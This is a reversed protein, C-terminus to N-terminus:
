RTSGARERVSPPVPRLSDMTFCRTSPMSPVTEACLSSPLSVVIRMRSGAAAAMVSTFCFFAPHRLLRRRSCCAGRAQDGEDTSQADEHDGGADLDASDRHEAGARVQRRTYRRQDQDLRLRAIRDATREDEAESGAVLKGEAAHAPGAVVQVQVDIDVARLDHGGRGVDAVGAVAGEEPRQRDLAARPPDLEAPCAHVVAVELDAGAALDVDDYLLLRGRAVPYPGIM